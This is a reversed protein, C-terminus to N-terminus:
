VCDGTISQDNMYHTVRLIISREIPQTNAPVRDHVAPACTPRIVPDAPYAPAPTQNRRFPPFYVATRTHPRHAQQKALLVKVIPTLRAAKYQVAVFAPNHQVTFNEIL